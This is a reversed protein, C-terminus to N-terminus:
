FSHMVNNKNPGSILFLDNFNEKVIHLNKSVYSNTFLRSENKDM